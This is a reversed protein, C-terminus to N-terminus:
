RSPSSRCPRDASRAARGLHVTGNLDEAAPGLVVREVHAIRADPLGGDRFAQRALDDLAVNGVHQQRRDDVREVHARQQGAGAVAAIELLPQLRDHVLQLLEGVGDQEDVLDVRHDAGAGRGAPAISAEFRSFGAKDPPVIRQM